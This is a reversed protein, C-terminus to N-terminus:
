HGAVVLRIWYKKNPRVALSNGFAYSSMYSVKIISLPKTHAGVQQTLIKGVISDLIKQILVKNRCLVSHGFICRFWVVVRRSRQRGESLPPKLFSNTVM